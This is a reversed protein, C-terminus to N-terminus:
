RGLRLGVSAGIRFGPLFGNYRTNITKTGADVEVEMKEGILPIGSIANRIDQEAEDAQVFTWPISNAVDTM